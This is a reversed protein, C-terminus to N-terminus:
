SYSTTMVELINISVCDRLSLINLFLASLLINSILRIHCSTILDPILKSGLLEQCLSGICYKISILHFSDFTPRISVGVSGAKV